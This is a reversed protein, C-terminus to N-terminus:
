NFYLKSLQTLNQIYKLCKEKNDDGMNKIPGRLKEIAEIVKNNKQEGMNIDENYDKNLFFDINGSTIELDYKMTINKYWVDIIMKPNSKKLLMLSDRTMIIDKDNPFISHIDDIFEVFHNNFGKFIDQKNM